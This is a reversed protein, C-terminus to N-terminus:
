IEWASENLILLSESEIAWIGTGTGIDLINQPNEGIDAFHLKGGCLNLVMAHKLDERDQETEDNPFNYAGERFMHYRCGNEFRYNHVSSALSSSESGLTDTDYSPDTGSDLLDIEIGAQAQSVATATEFDSAAQEALTLEAQAPPANLPSTSKAKPEASSSFQKSTSSTQKSSIADVSIASDHPSAPQYMKAM